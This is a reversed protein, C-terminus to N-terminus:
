LLDKYEDSVSNLKPSSFDIKENKIKNFIEEKTSGNFPFEGTILYYMIIGCSWEDKKDDFNIENETNRKMIDNKEIKEIIEPSYYLIHNLDSIDYYDKLYGITLLNIELKRKLPNQIIKKGGNNSNMSNVSNNLEQNKGKKIIRKTRSKLTLEFLILNDIQLSVDFIENDHLYMISNLIQNMILKITSEEPSGKDKIKNLINSDGNYNSILYYNNEYIYFEYIKCINPHDVLQLDKVRKLFSKKKENDNFGEGGPIITMRRFTTSNNILIVVKVNESINSIIKYSDFPNTYFQNTYLFMKSKIFKKSNRKKTSLDEQKNNETIIKDRIFKDKVELKMPRSPMNLPVKKVEENEKKCDICSEAINGM